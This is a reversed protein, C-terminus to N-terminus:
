KMGWRANHKSLVQQDYQCQCFRLAEKHWLNEMEQGLLDYYRKIESYNDVIWDIQNGLRRNDYHPQTIATALIRASAQAFINM